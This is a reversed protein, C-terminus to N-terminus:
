QRFGDEMGSPTGLVPIDRETRLQRNGRRLRNLEGREAGSLDEKGPLPKGRHIAEQAVYNAITRIRM